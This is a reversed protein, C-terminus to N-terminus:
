GRVSRRGQPFQRGASDNGADLHPRAVQGHGRRDGGVQCGLGGGGPRPDVEGVQWLGQALRELGQVEGGGPAVGRRRYRTPLRRLRAPADGEEGGRVAERGDDALAGRRGEQGDVARDKVAITEGEVLGARREVQGEGGASDEPRDLHALLRHTRDLAAAPE